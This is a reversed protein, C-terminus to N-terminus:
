LDKEDFDKWQIVARSRSSVNLRLRALDLFYKKPPCYGKTEKGPAHAKSRHGNWDRLVAGMKSRCTSPCESEVYGMRHSVSAHCDDSGPLSSRRAVITRAQCFERCGDPVDRTRISDGPVHGVGTEDAM